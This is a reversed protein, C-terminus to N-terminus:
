CSTLICAHQKQFELQLEDTIDSQLLSREIYLKLVLELLKFLTSTLTLKTPELIKAMGKIYLVCPWGQSETPTYSAMLRRGTDGLHQISINDPGSAKGKGLNAPATHLEESTIHATELLSQISAMIINSTPNVSSVRSLESTTCRLRHLLM